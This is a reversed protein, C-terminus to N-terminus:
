FKGHEVIGSQTTNSINRKTFFSTITLLHTQPNVFVNACRITQSHCFNTNPLKLWKMKVFDFESTEKSNTGNIVIINGFNKQNWQCINSCYGHQTRNPELKTWKRNTFDFLATQGKYDPLKVWSNTVNKTATLQLQACRTFNDLALCLVGINKHYLIKEKSFIFDCPPLSWLLAEDKLLLAGISGNVNTSVQLLVPYRRKNNPIILEHDFGLCKLNEKTLEDIFLLDLCPAEKQLFNRSNAIQKFDLWKVAKKEKVNFLVISDFIYECGNSFVGVKYQEELLNKYCYKFIIWQIAEVGGLHKLSFQTRVWYELIYKIEHKNIEYIETM